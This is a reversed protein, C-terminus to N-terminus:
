EWTTTESGQIAVVTLNSRVSACCRHYRVNDACDIARVLYKPRTLDLAGFSMSALKGCHCKRPRRPFLIYPSFDSADGDDIIRKLGQALLDWSAQSILTSAFTNVLVDADLAALCLKGGDCSPIQYPTKRATALVQDLTQLLV